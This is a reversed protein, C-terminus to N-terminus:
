LSQCRLMTKSFFAESECLNCSTCTAKDQGSQLKKVLDPEKIFPRSMSILDAIGRKLISEMCIRSRIGNVLALPTPKAVERIRSAYGAYSAEKLAPDTSRALGRMGRMHKLDDPLGLGGGSIEILDIGQRCITVATKMSEEIGFGGPIFDDCNMKLMIPVSKGFRGRIAEYVEILLRMRNRLSGGWEDSRRNLRPSLFESILYGHAGHIQVGDFGAELAREAADGFAEIIGWIEESSLERGEWGKGKYESPGAPDIMSQLGGHNLQAVIKGEHEHVADTLRKLMPLQSDSDIGAMGVHVKGSKSVYLHGKVILGVGGEALKRYLEVIEPRIIGDDDSWASTTASRMFRNKM